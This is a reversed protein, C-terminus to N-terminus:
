QIAGPVDQDLAATNLAEQFNNFHSNKYFYITIQKCLIGYKKMLLRQENLSTMILEGVFM